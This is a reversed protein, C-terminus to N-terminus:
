IGLVNGARARGAAGAPLPTIGLQARLDKEWEGAVLPTNSLNDVIFQFKERYQTNLANIAEANNTHRAIELRM